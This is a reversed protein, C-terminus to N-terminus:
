EDDSATLHKDVWDSHCIFDLWEMWTFTVSLHQYPLNNIWTQLCVYYRGKKKGLILWTDQSLTIHAEKGLDKLALTVSFLDKLSDWDEPYLCLASGTTKQSLLLYPKLKRLSFKITLMINAIEKKQMSSINVEKSLVYLQKSDLQIFDM